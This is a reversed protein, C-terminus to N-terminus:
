FFQGIYDELQGLYDVASGALGDATEAAQDKLGELQGVIGGAAEAAQAIYQKKLERHQTLYGQLMAKAQELYAKAESWKANVLGSFQEASLSESMALLEGFNVGYEWEVSEVLNGAAETQNVFAAAQAGVASIQAQLMAFKEGDFESEGEAIMGEIQSILGTLEDELQDYFLDVYDNANNVIEGLDLGSLEELGHGSINEILEDVDSEIEEEVEHIKDVVKSKAAKKLMKKCVKKMDCEKWLRKDACIDETSKVQCDDASASVSVLVLGSLALAYITKM